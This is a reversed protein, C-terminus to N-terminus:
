LTWRNIEKKTTRVYKDCMRTGHTKSPFLGKKDRTLGRKPCRTTRDTTSARGWGWWDRDFRYIGVMEESKIDAKWLCLSFFLSDTGRIRTNSKLPSPQSALTCVDPIGIRAVPEPRQLSRANKYCMKFSGCGNFSQAGAVNWTCYSNLYLVNRPMARCKPELTKRTM